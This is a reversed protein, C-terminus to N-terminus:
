PKTRKGSGATSLCREEEKTKKRRATVKSFASKEFRVTFDSILISIEVKAKEGKKPPSRKSFDFLLASSFFMVCSFAMELSSFFFFFFFFRLSASVYRAVMPPVPLSLLFFIVLSVIVVVSPVCSSGTLYQVLRLALTSVSILSFGRAKTCERSHFFIMFPLDLLLFFISEM